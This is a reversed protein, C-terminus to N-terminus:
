IVYEKIEESAKQCKPSWSFVTWEASKESKQMVERRARAKGVERGQKTLLKFMPRCKDGYHSIFMSLPTIKGLLMQVDKVLAPTHSNLLSKIKALNADIGRESVTFGLFKGHQVGFVWKGPNLRLGNKRLHTFVEIIDQILDQKVKSKIIIDNVYVEINRGIQDEFAHDM